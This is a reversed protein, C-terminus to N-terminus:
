APRGFAQLEGLQMLYGDAGVQKLRTGIIRVYRATAPTDFTVTRPAASITTDGTRTAAVQWTAGDLSTEIRYATPFGRGANAHDTASDRPYVVVRDLLFTDGLEVAAWETSDPSTNRSVQSTWGVTTAQPGAQGDNVFASSWGWVAAETSSSVDHPRKEALNKGEYWEGPADPVPFTAPGPLTGDDDYAELEALELAPKGDVMRHGDVVVRLYRARVTPFTTSPVPQDIRPRDPTLESVTNWTSGDTSSQISMSTPFAEGYGFIGGAPYLDVRNVPRVSRLDFTVTTDRAPDVGTARWGQSTATSFRVGDTLKDMYWGGAGESTAATVNADLAANAPRAVKPTKLTTPLAFLMSDGKALDLSFKGNVSTMPELAGTTRSVRDIRKTGQTLHLDVQQSDTFDNNVVMLYQRGSERDVMRSVLVDDDEGFEAIFGDPPTPMGHADPGHVYVDRADLRMLTPGWARVEGNLAKVPEYLDTRKGDATIIADTFTESRGTPTFWTFYSLQKFGFALSANVEYRIEAANTRRFGAPSGDANVRGISQIYLGTKAGNDLGVTRMADMNEFMGAYDVTNPADGFPYRDFNLYDVEDNGALESFDDVQSEFTARNSYAGLPLFNMHPYLWSAQDKVARHPRAYPNANFPEDKLYIGGVGPVNQYEAVIKKVADPSMNPANALRPDAVGVKMGREAALTAMRMNTSKEDLGSGNVNQVFNVNAETLADYQEDNTYELTPAWFVSVLFESDTATRKAIVRVPVSIPDAGPHKATITTSGLGAATVEGADSVTAVSPDATSWQFTTASAPLGNVTAVMTDSEGPLLELAPKDLQVVTGLSTGYVAVEGLQVLAGDAGAPARRTMRFRVFRGEAADFDVVQETTVNANGTRSAVTTWSGNAGTDSVQVAYDVPYNVGDNAGDMRPYLVARSVESPTLLDLSVWAPTTVTDTNGIPNTSWGYPLTGTGIKGDNVFATGWGESSMEYSSSSRADKGRALNSLGEPLHPDSEFIDIDAAAAATPAATPAGTATPAAQAAVQTGTLGLALAVSATGTVTRRMWLTRM